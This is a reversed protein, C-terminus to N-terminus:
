EGEERTAKSDLADRMSQLVPNVFHGIYAGDVDTLVSTADKMFRPELKLLETVLRRLEEAKRQALETNPHM